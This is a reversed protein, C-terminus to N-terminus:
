DGAATGTVCPPNERFADGPEHLFQIRGVAKARDAIRRRINRRQHFSRQRLVADCLERRTGGGCLVEASHEFLGHEGPLLVETAGAKWLLGMWTWMGGRRRRM